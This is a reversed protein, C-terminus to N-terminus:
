CYDSTTSVKTSLNPVSPFTKESQKAAEVAEIVSVVISQRRPRFEHPSSPHHDSFSPFAALGSPNIAPITPPVPTPKTDLLMTCKALIIEDPDDVWPVNEEQNIGEKGSETFNNQNMGGATGAGTPSRTPSRATAPLNDDIPFAEGGKSFSRPLLHNNNRDRSTNLRQHQQSLHKSMDSGNRSLSVGGSKMGKLLLNQDGFMALQSSLTKMLNSKSKKTNLSNASQPRKMGKGNKNASKRGVSASSSKYIEASSFGDSWLFMAEADAKKKSQTWSFRVDHLSPLAIEIDEVEEEIQENTSATSDFPLLLSPFRPLMPNMDASLRRMTSYSTQSSTFSLHDGNDLDQQRGKLRDPRIRNRAASTCLM